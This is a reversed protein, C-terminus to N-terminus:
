VSMVFARVYIRDMHANKFVSGVFKPVDSDVLVDDVVSLIVGNFELINARIYTM